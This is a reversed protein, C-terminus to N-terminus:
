VKQAFEILAGKTSKPHVFGIRTGVSPRGKQDILQLGSQAVRALETDVNDVELCVHHIGEGNKELFKAVGSDPTLPELLEIEGGGPLPLMAMKVGQAAVEHIASMKTNLLKEYLPIAENLSKVVIAVHHFTKIM